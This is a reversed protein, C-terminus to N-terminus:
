QFNYTFSLNLNIIGTSNDFSFNNINFDKFIKNNSIFYKKIRAYNLWGEVTGNLNVRNTKNDLSVSTIKMFKPLYRPPQQLLPLISKKEDILYKLSLFHMLTQYIETNLQKSYQSKIDEIESKLENIRKNNYSSLYNLCFSGFYSFVLGGILFYFLKHPILEWINKLM